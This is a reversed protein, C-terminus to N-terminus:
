GSLKKTASVLADPYNREKTKKLEEFLLRVPTSLSPPIQSSADIVPSIQFLKPCGSEKKPKYLDFILDVLTTFKTFKCSM